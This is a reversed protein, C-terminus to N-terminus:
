AQRSRNLTRGRILIRNLIRRADELEGRQHLIRAQLHLTVLANSFHEALVGIHRQAEEARELTLLARILGARAPPNKPDAEVGKSFSQVADEYRQMALELEGKLVWTDVDSQDDDIAINLLREADTSDGESMAVRAMGRRAEANSPDSDLVQSFSRWADDAQKASLQAQLILWNADNSAGAGAKAMSITREFARQMLMSQVRM